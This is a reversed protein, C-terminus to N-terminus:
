HDRGLPVSLGLYGHITDWGPNPRSLNGNSIHYWRVGGTLGARRLSVEGGLGLHTSFNFSTGGLPGSEGTVVGGVGAEGFVSGGGRRVPHWRGLLATGMGQTDSRRRNFRLWSVEASVSVANRVFRQVGGSGMRLADDSGLADGAGAVLTMRGWEPDDDPDTPEPVPPEGGGTFVVLATLVPISPAM